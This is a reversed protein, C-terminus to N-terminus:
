GVRKELRDAVETKGPRGLVKQREVGRINDGERRDKLGTSRKESNQQESREKGPPM